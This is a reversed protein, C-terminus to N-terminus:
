GRRAIAAVLAPGLEPYRFVHGASELRAPIARQSFLLLEDAMGGLVLRVAFAPTPVFSPTGLAHGLAHAFDIQRVPNPAVANVPGSLDTTEIAARYVAAIDDLAIWSMWQRGGGIPGGLGLRYLLVLPGLAGGRALVMGTRVHVVRSGARVAPEAAAEWARSVDALFGAGADNAETLIADGRDGYYGIGSACVLVRPGRSQALAAALLRTSRTRSELILARRAATWRGSAISEGALHVVADADELAAPDLRDQDPAWLREDPARPPRRVMRVVQHGATVLAPVLASGILGSAGTVVVRM